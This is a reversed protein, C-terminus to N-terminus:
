GRVVAARGHGLCRCGGRVRDASQDTGQERVARGTGGAGVDPGGVRPAAALVGGPPDAGAVYQAEGGVPLRGRSQAAFRAQAVEYARVDADGDGDAHRVALPGVSQGVRQVGPHGAARGLLM